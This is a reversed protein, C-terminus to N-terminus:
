LTVPAPAVDKGAADLLVTLTLEASRRWSFQAARKRGQASLRRRLASETLLRFLGDAISSVDEPDVEFAAGGALEPLSGGKGILAPVGRSMAELLPLGFGEYLSPFALGAAAEYLAALTPDDVHGLYTVGPESRLMTVTPSDGWGPRGAIVLAVEKRLRLRRFAEILRRYNKRREVTGVALLFGPRLQEPLDGAPPLSTAAEPVLHVTKSRSRHGAYYRLLDDRTAESPVIVAASKRLARPLVTGLYVRQQWPVERPRVRFALDHVVTVAPPAGRQRFPPPPWYPYLMVDLGAMGEVFPLWLLKHALEHRHPSLVFDAEAQTLGAPRERSCFLTFRHGAGVGLLAQTLEIASTVMGVRPRWCATLDVGIAAM